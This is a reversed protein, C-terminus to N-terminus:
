DKRFLGFLSFAPKARRPEPTLPVDTRSRGDDSFTVQMGKLRKLLGFDGNQLSFGINQGASAEKLQEHHTEITNVVMVKGQVNAKMGVRFVGEKVMGVPVCGIGTINYVDTIHIIASAM